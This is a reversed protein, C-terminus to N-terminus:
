KPKGARSSWVDAPIREYPNEEGEEKKLKEPEKLSWYYRRLPVSSGEQKVESRRVAMLGEDQLTYFLVRCDKSILADEVEEQDRFINKVGEAVVSADEKAM